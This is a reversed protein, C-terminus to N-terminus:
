VGIIFRDPQPYPRHSLSLAFYMLDIVIVVVRVMTNRSM